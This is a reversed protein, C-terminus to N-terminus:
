NVVGLGAAARAHQTPVLESPTRGSPIRNSPTGSSPKRSSPVPGGPFGNAYVAIAMAPDGSNVM